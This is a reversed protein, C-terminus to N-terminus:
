YNIAQKVARGYDRILRRVESRFDQDETQKLFLQDLYRGYRYQDSYLYSEIQGRWTKQDGQLLLYREQDQPQYIQHEALLGSWNNLLTQWATALTHDTDTRQNPEKQVAQEGWAALWSFEVQRVLNIFNKNVQFPAFSRMEVLNRLTSDPYPQVSSESQARHRHLPFYVPQSNVLSIKKYKESYVSINNRSNELEQQTPSRFSYGSADLIARTEMFNTQGPSLEFGGLTQHITLTGELGGALITKILDRIQLRPSFSPSTVLERATSFEPIDKFPSFTALRGSRTPVVMVISNLDDLSLQDGEKFKAEFRLISIVREFRRQVSPPLGHQKSIDLAKQIRRRTAELAEVRVPDTESPKQRFEHRFYKFFEQFASLLSRHTSIISEITSKTEHMTKQTELLFELDDKGTILDAVHPDDKSLADLLDLRKQLIHCLDTAQRVPDPYELELGLTPSDPFQSAIQDEKNKQRQKRIFDQALQAKIDLIGDPDLKKEERSMKSTYEKYAQDLGHGVILYHLSLLDSRLLREELPGPQGTETLAKQAAELFAFDADRIDVSDKRNEPEENFSSCYRQAFFDIFTEYTQLPSLKHDKSKHRKERGTQTDDIIFKIQETSLSSEAM